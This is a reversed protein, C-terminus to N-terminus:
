TPEELAKSASSAAVLLRRHAEDWDSSSWGVFLAHRIVLTAYARAAMLGILVVTDARIVFPLQMPGLPSAVAATRDAAQLLAWPYGHTVGSLWSWLVDGLGSGPGTTDDILDGILTRPTPVAVGGVHPKNGRSADWGLHSAGGCVRDLVEAGKAKAAPLPMRKMQKGNELALVEARKVRVEVGVPAALWYAAGAADLAMRALPLHAYTPPKATEFARGYTALADGASFLRVAIGAIASEVPDSWWTSTFRHEEAIEAMAPSDAAASASVLGISAGVLDSIVTCMPAVAAAFSDDDAERM